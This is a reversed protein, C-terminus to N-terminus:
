QSLGSYVRDINYKMMQIYDMKIGFPDLFIIEVGAERKLLEGYKSNYFQVAAFVARINERKILKILHLLHRPTPERGHGMEVVGAYELGFARTFYPWAYHYSIFKKNKLGSFKKLGYNKINETKRVFTRLNDRYTNANEPDIKELRNEIYRAIVVANDPDLWLAPHVHHEHDHHHEEEEGLLKLGRIDIIRIRREPPLSEILGTLRPEGTGIYIFLDSRYAKKLDSAKLEYIHPSVGPPILYEVKSGTIASVIDAIPKVTTYVNVQGYSLGAILFLLILLVRM